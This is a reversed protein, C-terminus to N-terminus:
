RLLVSNRMTFHKKTQVMNFGGEANMTYSGTRCIMRFLQQFVIFAAIEFFYLGNQPGLCLWKDHQQCLISFVLRYDALPPWSQLDSCSSSWLSLLLEVDGHGDLSWWFRNFGGRHGLSLTEAQPNTWCLARPARTPLVM